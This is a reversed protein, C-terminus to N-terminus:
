RQTTRSFLALESQNAYWCVAVMTVNLSQDRVSAARM